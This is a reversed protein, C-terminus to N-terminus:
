WNLRLAFQMVRPDGSLNTISAVGGSSADGSPQGFLAHNAVNFVEWRAEVNWEEHIPIHKVLAADFVNTNPGRLTNRSTNGVVFKGPDAFPDTVTTGPSSCGSNRSIFFWCSQSKLYHVKGVTNPVATAFGYPDLQSSESGWKAQFPHGSYFTYVGSTQWNGLIWSLVGSNFMAKGRGFPLEYVYSVSVRHPVDFDSPGYWGNYNRGNPPDGSNSELEEPTNDLSRSYTYAARVSIGKKMQRTLSAQLGNYNGYGIPTTYEVQGFNPYPQMQTSVGGSIIPQNYDYIVDLHNSKTGVYDAEAQWDAGIQRQFGGSWQQVMPEKAAPNLARIHFAQLNNFDITSPDLFNSPFGVEPPIVSQTTSAQTKNVLFPPNLSLQDESGIREFVTYYIGYGGRLVTKDTVAYSVGFRPGFNTTNPDMLSRDGVSGSKAFRLSGSGAPNFNAVRNKGEMVPTVFDYRLGLNLTLRPTVKWDDEFFGSAMWLRQDVFFVNTLQTYQTAGFLGDAYDRANTTGKVTATGLGSFVGNFTLDGRTGPEDQFLNRMPLYVTGGFKVAHNGLTWALSDNYQYFM